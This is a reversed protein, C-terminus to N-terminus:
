LFLIRYVWKLSTFHLLLRGASQSFPHTAPAPPVPRPRAGATPSHSTGQGQVEPGQWPPERSSQGAREEDELVGNPRGQSGTGAAWAPGSGRLAGWLCEAAATGTRWGWRRGDPTGSGHRRSGRPRHWASSRAAPAGPAGDPSHPVRRRAPAAAARFLPSTPQFPRCPGDTNVNGDLLAVSPYSSSGRPAPVPGARLPEKRAAAATRRSFM